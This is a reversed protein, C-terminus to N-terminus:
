RAGLNEPKMAALAILAAPMAAGARRMTRAAQHCGKLDNGQEMAVAQELTVAAPKSAQQSNPVPGAQGSTQQPQGGAPGPQPAGSGAAQPATTQAAPPSGAPASGPPAPKPQLFAVLEKCINAPGAQAQPAPAAQKDAASAPAQPAVMMDKPPVAGQAQNDAPAPPQQALATAGSALSMVVVIALAKM